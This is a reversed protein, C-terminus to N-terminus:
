CITRANNLGEFALGGSISADGIVAVVKREPSDTNMRSAVAM